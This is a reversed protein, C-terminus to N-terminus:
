LDVAHDDGWVQHVLDKVLDYVCACMCMHAKICLVLNHKDAPTLVFM